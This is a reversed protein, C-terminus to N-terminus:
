AGSACTLRNNIIMVDGLGSRGRRYVLQMGGDPTTVFQPYTV